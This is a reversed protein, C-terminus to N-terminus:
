EEGTVAITARDRTAGCGTTVTVTATALDSPADALWFVRGTADAATRFAALKEGAADKLEFRCVASPQTEAVIAFQEGPAISEPTSAITVDAKLRQPAIERFAAPQRTPAILDDALWRDFDAYFDDIEEGFATAFAERWPTGDHILALYHLLPAEGQDGALRSVALYGLSYVPGDARQFADIEALDALPALYERALEYRRSHEDVVARHDILGLSEISDYSSYEAMGEIFWFPFDGVDYGLMAHQYVHVYEHVIVQLRLAPSMTSWGPAGTFVVLFGDSAFALVSPNGPNATPRVNVVLDDALGAGFAREVFRRGLEIGSRAIAEDDASVGASVSYRIQPEAAIVPAVPLLCALAFWLVLACRSLLGLM